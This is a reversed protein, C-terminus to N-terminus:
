FTRATFYIRYGSITQSLDFGAGELLKRLEPYKRIKERIGSDIAQKVQGAYPIEEYNLHFAFQKDSPLQIGNLENVFVSIHIRGEQLIRSLDAPALPIQSLTLLDTLKAKEYARGAEFALNTFDRLTVSQDYSIGPFLAMINSIAVNPEFPFTAPDGVGIANLIKPVNWPAFLFVFEEPLLAM